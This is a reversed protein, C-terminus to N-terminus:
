SGRRCMKLGYNCGFKMYNEQTIPRGMQIDRNKLLLACSVQYRKLLLSTEPRDSATTIAISTPVKASALETSKVAGVPDTVRPAPPDPRIGM